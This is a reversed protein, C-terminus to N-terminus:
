GCESISVAISAYQYGDIPDHGSVSVNFPRKFDRTKVLDCAANKAATFDLVAREGHQGMREMAEIKGYADDAEEVKCHGSWSM